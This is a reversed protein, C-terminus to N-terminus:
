ATGSALRVPGPTLWAALIVLAFALCQLFIGVPSGPLPDGFVIIGGVIGFVNGATCIIAIVAVAEGEQLGKASAYFAAIYAAVTVLTWPSILGAVGHVGVVGTLAKIAVDSVAFLIGAGAGLMFGHHEPRTGIQRGVILLTGVALLGTEFVILGPASFRSYAGHSGPLTFGLLVLGATTLGLGLWQRRGVRLGFLWEAMAALLVVGGALVCQVVSLPVLAMAVVHFIWAGVAIVMGLTFARSSFLSRASAMPRRLDVPTVSCAGRHRYLFGVNTAIACAIAFFIGLALTM